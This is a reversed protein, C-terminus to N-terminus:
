SKVRMWLSLPLSTATLTVRQRPLFYDRRPRYFLNALSVVLDPSTDVGKVSITIPDSLPPMNSHLSTANFTSGVRAFMRGDRLVGSPSEANASNIRLV